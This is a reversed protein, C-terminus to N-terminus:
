DYASIIQLLFSYLGKYYKYMSNVMNELNHTYWNVLKALSMFENSTIKDLSRNKNKISIVKVCRCM